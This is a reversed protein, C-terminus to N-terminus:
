KLLVEVWCQYPMVHKLICTRSMIGWTSLFPKFYTNINKIYYLLNKGSEDSTDLKLKMEDEDNDSMSDPENDDGDEKAEEDAFPNAQLSLYTM